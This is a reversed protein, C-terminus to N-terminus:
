IIDYISKSFFSLNYFLLLDSFLKRIYFSFYLIIDKKFPIFYFQLFYDLYYGLLCGLSGFYLVNFDNFNNFHSMYLINHSLNFYFIDNFYQDDINNLIISFAYGSILAGFSLLTTPILLFYNYEEIFKDL